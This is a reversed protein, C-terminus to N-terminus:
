RTIQVLEGIVPTAHDPIRSRQTGRNLLSTNIFGSTLTYNNHITFIMTPITTRKITIHLRQDEAVAPGPNKDERCRHPTEELPFIRPHHFGQARADLLAIELQIAHIAHIAFAPIGSVPMRRGASQPMVLIIAINQVLNHWEAFLAVVIGKQHRDARTEARVMGDIKGEAVRLQNIAHNSQAAQIIDGTKGPAEGIVIDVEIVGAGEDGILM